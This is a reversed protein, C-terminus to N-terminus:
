VQSTIIQNTKKFILKDNLFSYKGVSLLTKLFSVVDEFHSWLFTESDNQDIIIYNLTVEM